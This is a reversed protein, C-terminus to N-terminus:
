CSGYKRNGLDERDGQSEPVADELEVEAVNGRSSLDMWRRQAVALQKELDKLEAQHIDDELYRPERGQKEYLAKVKKKLVDAQMFARDREDPNDPRYANTKLESLDLTEDCKPCEYAKGGPYGDLKKVPGGCTPCKFQGNDLSNIPNNVAADSLKRTVDAPLEAWLKTVMGSTESFGALNLWRKRRAADAHDWVYDGASNGLVRVPKRSMYEVIRVRGMKSNPDRERAIKEAKATAEALTLPSSVDDMRWNGNWEWEADYGPEANALEVYRPCKCTAVNCPGEMKSGGEHQSEAHGCECKKSSNVFELDSMHETTRKGDAWEVDVTGAPDNVDIVTARMNPQGPRQVRDGENAYKVSNTREGRQNCRFNKCQRNGCLPEEHNVDMQSFMSMPLKCSPCPPRAFPDGNPLDEAKATTTKVAQQYGASAQAIGGDANKKLEKAREGLDQMVEKVAPDSVNYREKIVDTLVDKASGSIDKWERASEDFSGTQRCLLRRQERSLGAWVQAPDTNWLDKKADSVDRKAEARENPPCSKAYEEAKQLRSADEAVAKKDEALTREADRLAEEGDKLAEKSNKAEKELDKLVSRMQSISVPEGDSKYGGKGDKEVYCPHSEVKDLLTNIRRMLTDGESNEKVEERRFEGHVCDCGEADCGFESHQSQDHPCAPCVSNKPEVEAHENVQEGTLEVGCASCKLVPLDNKVASVMEGCCTPCISNVNECIVDHNLKRYCAKCYARKGGLKKCEHETVGDDTGCDDCTLDGFANKKEPFIAMCKMCTMEGSGASGMPVTEGSGCKPCLTDRSANTNEKLFGNGKDALGKAKLQDMVEPQLQGIHLPIGWKDSGAFRMKVHTSDMIELEYTDGNLTVTIMNSNEKRSRYMSYAVAARQKPDPYDRNAEDSGMFRSVYDVESEGKRPSPNTLEPSNRLSERWDKDSGLYAQLHDQGSKRREIYFAYQRDTMAKRAYLADHDEIFGANQLGHTPAPLNARLYGRRFEDLTMEDMTGFGWAPGHDRYAKEAAEADQFGLFVKDEDRSGDMDLQHVVFVSPADEIPGLYVDVPDGDEGETKLIEGYPFQYVHSWEQGDQGVGSKTEGIEIEVAVPLGAFEVERKVPRKSNKLHSPPDSLGDGCGECRWRFDSDQYARSIRDGCSVELYGRPAHGGTYQHRSIMTDNNGVGSTRAQDVPLDMTGYEKSPTFVKSNDLRGRKDLVGKDKSLKVLYGCHVSNKLDLSGRLGCAEAMAELQWRKYRV